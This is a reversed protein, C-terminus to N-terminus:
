QCILWCAFSSKALRPTSITESPGYDRAIAALIQENVFRVSKTEVALHRRRTQGSCHPLKAISFRPAAPSLRGSPDPTRFPRVPKLIQMGDPGTWYQPNVSPGFLRGLSGRRGISSFVIRDPGIAAYDQSRSVRLIASCFFLPSDLGSQRFFISLPGTRSRTM